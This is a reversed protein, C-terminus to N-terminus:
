AALVRKWTKLTFETLFLAEFLLKWSSSVVDMSLKPIIRTERANLETTAKPKHKTSNELTNMLDKM